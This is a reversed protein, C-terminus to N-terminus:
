RHLGGLSVVDPDFQRLSVTAIVAKNNSTHPFNIIHAPFALAIPQPTFAHTMTVGNTYTVDFAQKGRARKAIKFLDFQCIYGIYHNSLSDQECGFHYCSIIKAATRAHGNFCFVDVIGSLCVL